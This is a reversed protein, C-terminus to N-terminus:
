ARIKKRKWSLSRKKRGLVPKRRSSQPCIKMETFPISFEHGKWPEWNVDTGLWFEGTPDGFGEMYNKWGQYFDVKGTSWRQFVTGRGGDTSMDCCVQLPRSGDGNLYISYMSSSASRNQQVHSCDMPYQYLFSMTHASRPFSDMLLAPPPVEGQSPGISLPYKSTGDEGQYTLSYHDIQPAAPTPHTVGSVHLNKPPDIEIPLNKVPKTTTMSWDEKTFAPICLFGSSSLETQAPYPVGAGESADSAQGSKEQATLNGTVAETGDRKSQQERKEAWIYIIYETGPRLGALTTVNKDKEVEKEETHGRASTYSVRYRDISAQVVNLFCYNCGRDGTVARTSAKKSRQPGKEAWIDTVYEMDPKLDLLTIMYNECGVQIERTDGDASTYRVMYRDVPAEVKNWSVTATDETMCKNQTQISSNTLNLTFNVHSFFQRLVVTQSDTMGAVEGHEQGTQFVWSYESTLIYRSKPDNSKPVMVQKEEMEVLSRFKLKYYDGTPPNEQEVELSYEMEETVWIASAAPLVTSAELHKPESAIGKKVHHFHSMILNWGQVVHLRM